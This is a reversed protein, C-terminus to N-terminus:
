LDDGDLERSAGLAELDSASPELGFGGVTCTRQLVGGDQDLLIATRFDFSCRVADGEPPIRVVHDDLKFALQGAMTAETFEGRDVHTVFWDGLRGNAIDVRYTLSRTGGAPILADFTGDVLDVEHAEWEGIAVDNFTLRGAFAPTPIPYANPNHVDFILELETVAETVAGWRADTDRIEVRPTITVPDVGITPGEHEGEYAELGDRLTGILDTEITDDHTVTPTNGIPGFNAHIAAEITMDSTEGNDVHSAWWPPIREVHVDTALDITSRGSPLDVEDANGEALGVDNMVVAYEVGSIGYGLGVPNPNDVELDTLIEVRDEEVAGWRNTMSAISPAGLVGIAGLLGLLGAVGAGGIALLRRRTIGEPLPSAM